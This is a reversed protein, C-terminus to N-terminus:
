FKSEIELVKKKRAETPNYKNAKKYYKLANEYDSQKEFILGLNYCSAALENKDFYDERNEDFSELLQNKAEELENLKILTIALNNIDHLKDSETHHPMIVANQFYKKALGYNKEKYAKLGFKSYDSRPIQPEKYVEYENGSFRFVKLFYIPNTKHGKFYRNLIQLYNGDSEAFTFNGKLFSGILILEGNEDIEYIDAIDYNPFAVRDYYYHILECESDNDINVQILEISGAYETDLKKILKSQYNDLETENLVICKLSEIKIPKPFFYTDSEHQGFVSNFFAFLVLFLIFFQRMIRIKLYM